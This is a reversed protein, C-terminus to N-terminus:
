VRGHRRSMAGRGQSPRAKHQSTPLDWLWGDIDTGNRRGMWGTEDLKYMALDFICVFALLLLMATWPMKLLEVAERVTRECM